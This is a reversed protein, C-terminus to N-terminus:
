ADGTGAAREALLTALGTWVGRALHADWVDLFRTWLAARTERRDELLRELGPLLRAFGRAHGHFELHRAREDDRFAPLFALWVDCDHLEGLVEQLKKAAAVPDDLDGAFAPQFAELAYRLRKAAIRMAHLAEVADPDRVLPDRALLDEALPVVIQLAHRCVTPGPGPGTADPTEARVWTRRLGRALDAWPKSGELDDLARAVGAQARRRAQRLRLLLRALGPQERGGRWSTAVEEVLELQVDRDRAEGLARTIDRVAKRVNRAPKGLADEFIMLAARLRRGAVRMKHICEPDQALRVGRLQAQMAELHQQLNQAALLTYRADLARATRAM